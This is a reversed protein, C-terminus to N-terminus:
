STQHQKNPDEYLKKYVEAPYLNNNKDLQNSEKTLRDSRNSEKSDVDVLNGIIPSPYGLLEVEFQGQDKEKGAFLVLVGKSMKGLSFQLTLDKHNRYGIHQGREKWEYSRIGKLELKRKIFRAWADILPKEIELSIEIPDNESEQVIKVEVDADMVLMLDQAMAFYSVAQQSESLFHQEQYLEKVKVGTLVVGFSVICLVVLLELLTFCSTKVVQFM